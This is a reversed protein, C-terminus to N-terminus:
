SFAHSIEYAINEQITRRKEHSSRSTQSGTHDPLMNQRIHRLNSMRMVSHLYIYRQLRISLLFATLM